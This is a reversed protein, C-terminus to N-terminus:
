SIEQMNEVQWTKVSVEDKLPLYRYNAVHHLLFECNNAYSYGSICTIYIFHITLAVFPVLYKLPWVAKEQKTFTKHNLHMMAGNCHQLVPSAHIQLVPQVILPNSQKTM